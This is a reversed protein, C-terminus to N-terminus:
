TVQPKYQPKSWPGPKRTMRSRVQNSFTVAGMWNWCSWGKEESSPWCLGLEIGFPQSSTGLASGIGWPGSVSRIYGSTQGLLLLRFFFSSPSESCHALVLYLDSLKSDWSRHQREGHPFFLNTGSSSYLSIIFFSSSHPVCFQSIGFGRSKSAFSYDTYKAKKWIRAKESVWFM